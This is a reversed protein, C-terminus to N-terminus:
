VTDICNTVSSLSVLSHCWLTVSSSMGWIQWPYWPCQGQLKKAQQLASPGLPGAPASQKFSKDIISHLFDWRPQILWSQNIKGCLQKVNCVSEDNGLFQNFNIKVSSISMARNPHIEQHLFSLHFTCLHLLGKRGWGLSDKWLNQVMVLIKLIQWAWNSLSESNLIRM